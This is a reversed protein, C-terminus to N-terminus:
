VSYLNSDVHGTLGVGRQGGADDVGGIHQPALAALRGDGDPVHRAAGPGRRGADVRMELIARRDQAAHAHQRAAVEQRGHRLRGAQRVAERAQQGEGVLMRPVVLQQETVAKAIACLLLHLRGLEGEELIADALGPHALAVHPRRRQGDAVQQVTGRHEPKGLLLGPGHHGLDRDAQRSAQVANSSRRPL